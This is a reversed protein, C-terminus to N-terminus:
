TLIKNILDVTARPDRIYDLVIIWKQGPINGELFFKVDGYRLVSWFLSSYVWEVTKINVAVISQKSSLLGTQDIIYVKWPVALAFDLELNMSLRRHKFICFGAFLNLIVWVWLVITSEGGYFFIWYLLTELLILFLLLSVLVSINFFRIFNTNVVENKAIQDEINSQIFTEKHTKRYSLMYWITDSFYLIGALTYLGPIFIRELFWELYIFWVLANICIFLLALFAISSLKLAYIWSRKIALFEFIWQEKFEYLLKKEVDFDLSSFLRLYIKHFPLM